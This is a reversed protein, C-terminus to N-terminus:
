SSGQTRRRRLDDHGGANPPIIKSERSPEALAEAVAALLEDIEFPKRVLRVRHSLLDAEIDLVERVAATCVIIPITATSRHMKLMQLMQWGLRENGFLYDLLILDPKVQEVEAVDHFALGRLVVDYGGEGHLVEYFLQLIDASDNIVMIRAAM